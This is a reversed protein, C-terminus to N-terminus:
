IYFLIQSFIMLSIVITMEWLNMKFERIVDRFLIPAIVSFLLFFTGPFYLYVVHDRYPISYNFMLGFF